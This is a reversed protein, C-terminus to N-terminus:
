EEVIGEVKAGGSKLFALTLRDATCESFRIRKLHRGKFFTNKLHAHQFTVRVFACNDFSCDEVTGEFTLDSLMTDSFSTHSWCVNKLECKEFGGSRIQAGSFDAGGFDCGSVYSDAFVAERMVCEGFRNGSLMSHSIQSHSFDAGSFDCRDVNNGKLLLGTLKAGVFLCRQMNSGSFKDQLNSLGSFDADAWNGRSMDWGRKKKVEASQPEAQAEPLPATTQPMGAFYNLDVGLLEALRILMLIDPLSEGREWKGVAQASIFLREALQAQSLNNKKRADSIKTGIKKAEM